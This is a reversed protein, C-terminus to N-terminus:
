NCCSNEGSMLGEFSKRGWGIAEELALLKAPQETHKANWLNLHDESCFFNVHPCLDTASVSCCESSANGVVMDKTTTQIAGEKSIQISLKENCFECVSHVEVDEKLMFPMGLADVACMSYVQTGSTLKVLHNTPENSFPYAHTVLQDGPNRHILGKSELTNLIDDVEDITSLKLTEQLSELTPSQGTAAFSKLISLHTTKEAQTIM